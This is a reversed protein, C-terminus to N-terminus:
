KFIPLKESNILMAQCVNDKAKIVSENILNVIGYTEDQLVDKLHKQIQMVSSFLEDADWLFM